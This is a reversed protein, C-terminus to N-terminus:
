THLPKQILISTFVFPQFAPSCHGLATPHHRLSVLVARVESKVSKGIVGSTGRLRQVRLFAVLWQLLNIKARWVLSIL